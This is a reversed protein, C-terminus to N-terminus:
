KEKRVLIRIHNIVQNRELHLQDRKGPDSISNFKQFLNNQRESLQSIEHNDFKKGKRFVQVEEAEKQSSDVIIYWKEQVSM